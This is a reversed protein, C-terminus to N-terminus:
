RTSRHISPLEAPSLVKCQRTHLLISKVLASLSVLPKIRIATKQQDLVSKAIARITQQRGRLWPADPQDKCQLDHM